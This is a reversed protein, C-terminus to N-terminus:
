TLLGLLYFRAPALKGGGMPPIFDVTDLYVLSGTGIDEIILDAVAGGPSTTSAALALFANHQNGTATDNQPIIFCQFISNTTTINQQIWQNHNNDWANIRGLAEQVPMGGSSTSSPSGTAIPCVQIHAEINTTSSSDWCASIVFFVLEGTNLVGPYAHVYANPDPPIPVNTTDRQYTFMNGQNYWQLMHSLGQSNRENAYRQMAATIENLKM